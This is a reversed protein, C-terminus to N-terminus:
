AKPAVTGPSCDIASASGVPCYTSEDCTICDNASRMVPLLLNKRTGSPCPLPASSGEICYYGARCDM